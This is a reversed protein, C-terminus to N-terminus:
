EGTEINVKSRSFMRGIEQYVKLTPMNIRRIMAKSERASEVIQPPIISGYEPSIEIALNYAMAREYGPPLTVTDSAAAFSTLPQWLGLHLVNAASPVPWVKLTGTSMTPNYFIIEVRDSTTTKDSISDFRRKDAIEVPYDINSVRMFAHEIKVPRTTNLDGTSGVTYSSDGVTMTLTQESISFVLLRDNRWSEIMANLAELCNATDDASPSGGIAIVRCIRLARNIITQATAM